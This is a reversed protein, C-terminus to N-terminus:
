EWDIKPYYKHYKAKLFEIIISPYKEKKHHWTHKHEDLKKVWWKIAYYLGFISCISYTVIAINAWEANYSYCGFIAKIWHYTAIILCIIITLCLHIGFSFVRKEAPRANRYKDFPNYIIVPIQLILNPILIIFAFVLKWFYPCLNGPLASGYTNNYVWAHLSKNKLKM